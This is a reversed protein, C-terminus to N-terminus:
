GLGWVERMQRLMERSALGRHSCENKDAASLEAVTQGLEPLYLLPDYGFLASALKVTSEWRMALVFGLGTIWTVLRRVFDFDYGHRVRIEISCTM